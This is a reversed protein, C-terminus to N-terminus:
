KIQIGDIVKDISPNANLYIIIGESSPKMGIDLVTKYFEKARKM